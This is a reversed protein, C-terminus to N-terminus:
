GSFLPHFSYLLLGDENVMKLKGEIKRRIKKEKEDITIRHNTTIPLIEQFSIV